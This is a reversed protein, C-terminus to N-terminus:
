AFQVKEAALALAAGGGVERQHRPVARVPEEGCVRLPAVPARAVQGRPREHGGRRQWGAGGGWGGEDDVARHVIRADVTGEEAGAIWRRAGPLVETAGPM